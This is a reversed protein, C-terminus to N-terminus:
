TLQCRRAKELWGGTRFRLGGISGGLLLILSPAPVLRRRIGGLKHVHEGRGRCPADKCVASMCSQVIHQARRKILGKDISPQASWGKPSTPNFGFHQQMLARAELRVCEHKTMTSPSFCARLSALTACRSGSLGAVACYSSTPEHRVERLMLICSRPHLNVTLRASEHCASETCQKRRSQVHWVHM